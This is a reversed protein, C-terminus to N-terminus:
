KLTFKIPLVFQVRVFKGNQKGPTWAPMMSIVRLAEENCGQGNKVGRIVKITSLTGNKEVVFSIYCIGSIAAKREMEPYKINDQIFKTMVEQGGVYIPMQEVITLVQGEKDKEPEVNYPLVIASDTNNKISDKQAFCISSILLLICIFTNKM